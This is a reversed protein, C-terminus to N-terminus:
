RERVFDGGSDHHRAGTIAPVANGQGLSVNPSLDDADYTAQALYSRGPAAGFVARWNEVQMTITFEGGDFAQSPQIMYGRYLPRLETVAGAGNHLAIWVRFQRGAYIAPDEIANLLDPNGPDAALTVTLTDSGGDDHAIAGLRLVDATMNDFTFGACDADADAIGSGPVTIPMPAYAVRLPLDVFDAFLLIAAVVNSASLSADSLAV